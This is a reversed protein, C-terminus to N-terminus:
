TLSMSHGSTSATRVDMTGWRSPSCKFAMATTRDRRARSSAGGEALEVAERGPEYTVAAASRHLHGHLMLDFYDALKSTCRERDNPHLETLPHHALVLRLGSLPMGDATTAARMVQHETLWLQEHDHDDGSLWATDLGIVHVIAGRVERRACYALSNRPHCDPCLRAVWELYAARRTLVRTLDAPSAPPLGIDPRDSRGTSAQDVWRSFELADLRRAAARLRSWADYEHDRCIDHNGPVIFLHELNCRLPQLVRKSLFKAATPYEDRRGSWAADGTFCVFDICTASAIREICKDWAEGLVAQRDWPEGKGVHLDSLHLIVLSRKDNTSQSLVNHTNKM